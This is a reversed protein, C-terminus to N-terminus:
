IGLAFLIDQIREDYERVDQVSSCYREKLLEYADWPDQRSTNVLSKNLNLSRVLGSLMSRAYQRTRKQVANLFDDLTESIYCFEEAPNEFKPLAFGIKTFEEARWKEGRLIRERFKTAKEIISYNVRKNEQLYERPNVWNERKPNRQNELWEEYMNQLVWMEVAEIDEENQMDAAAPQLDGCVEDLFNLSFDKPYPMEIIYGECIGRRLTKTCNGAHKLYWERKEEWEAQSEPLAVPETDPLEVKIEVSGDRWEVKGFKFSNGAKKMRKLYIFSDFDLNDLSPQEDWNRLYGKIIKQM